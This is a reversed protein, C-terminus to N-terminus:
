KVLLSRRARREVAAVHRPSRELIERWTSTVVPVLGCQRFFGYALPGYVLLLNPNTVFLKFAEAIAEGANRRGYSTTPEEHRSVERRYIDTLARWKGRTFVWHWHHGLEHAVVGIVTLDAKYGPWTWAYPSSSAVSCRTPNIVIREGRATYYGLHRTRDSEGITPLYIGNRECFESCLAVAQLLQIRKDRLAYRPTM